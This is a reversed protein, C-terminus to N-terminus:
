MCVDEDNLVADDLVDNLVDNLVAPSAILWDDGDVDDDDVDDVDDISSMGIVVRWSKSDTSHVVLPPVPQQLKHVFDGHSIVKLLAVVEIPIM